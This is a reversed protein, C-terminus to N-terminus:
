LIRKQKIRLFIFLLVDTRYMNTYRCIYKKHIILTCTQKSLYSNVTGSYLIKFGNLRKQQILHIRSSNISM